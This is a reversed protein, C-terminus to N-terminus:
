FLLFILASYEEISIVLEFFCFLTQAIAKNDLIPCAVLKNRNLFSFLPILVAVSQSFYGCFKLICFCFVRGKFLKKHM